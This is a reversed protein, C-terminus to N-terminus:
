TLDAILKEITETHQVTKVRLILKHSQLLKKSEIQIEASNLPSRTGIIYGLKKSKKDKTLIEVSSCLQKVAHPIDKGKLEIYIEKETKNELEKKTEIAIIALWDCKNVTKEKILCDDVKCKEIKRQNENLLRFAAKSQKDSFVIIKDNITSICPNTM